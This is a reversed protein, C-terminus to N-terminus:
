WLTRQSNKFMWKKAFYFFFSSSVKQLCYFFKRFFTEVGFFVQVFFNYRCASISQITVNSHLFQYWPHPGPCVVMIDAGSSLRDRPPPVTKFFARQGTGTQLLQSYRANHKKEEYGGDLCGISVIGLFFLTFKWYRPSM